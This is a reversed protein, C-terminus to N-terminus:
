IRARPKNVWNLLCSGVGEEREEKSWPIELDDLQLRWGMLWLHISFVAILIDLFNGHNLIHFISDINSYFCYTGLIRYFIVAGIWIYHMSKSIFIDTDDDNIDNVNIKKSSITTGFMLVFFVNLFFNIIDKFGFSGM